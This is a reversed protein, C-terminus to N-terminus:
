IEGPRPGTKGFDMKAGIYRSPERIFAQLCAPRCFYYLTGGYDLLASTASPSVDTGCVPDKIQAFMNKSVAKSLIRGIYPRTEDGMKRYATVGAVVAAAFVAGGIIFAAPDGVSFGSSLFAGAGWGALLGAGPVGLLSGVSKIVAGPRHEVRVWDGPGAGIDNSAEVTIRSSCGSCHCHNMQAAGPICGGTDSRILVKVTGRAGAQIVFGETTSM